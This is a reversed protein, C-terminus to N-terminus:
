GEQSREIVMSTRGRSQPNVMIVKPTQAKHTSTSISCSSVCRPIGPEVMVPANNMARREHDEMDAGEDSGNQIAAIM